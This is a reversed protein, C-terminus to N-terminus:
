SSTVRHAQNTLIDVKGFTSVYKVTQAKPSIMTKTYKKIQDQEDYVYSTGSGNRDTSSKLRDLAVYTYLVKTQILM